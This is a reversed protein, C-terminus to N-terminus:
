FIVGKKIQSQQVSLFVGYLWQTEVETIRVYIKNTQKQLFGM